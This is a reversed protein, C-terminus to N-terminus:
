KHFWFIAHVLIKMKLREKGTSFVRGLFGSSVIPLNQGFNKRHYLGHKFGIESKMLLSSYWNFFVDVWLGTVIGDKKNVLVVAGMECLSNRRMSDLLYLVNLLGAIPFIVCLFDIWSLRGEVAEGVKM